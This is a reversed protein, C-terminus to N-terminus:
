LGDPSPNTAKILLSFDGVPISLNGPTKLYGAGM